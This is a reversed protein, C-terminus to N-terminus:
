CIRDVQRKARKKNNMHIEIHAMSKETMGFKQTGKVRMKQAVWRPRKQALKGSKVGTRESLWWNTQRWCIQWTTGCTPLHWTRQVMRHRERWWWRSCKSRLCQCRRMKEKIKSEDAGGSVCINRIKMYADFFWLFTHENNIVLVSYIPSRVVPHSRDM